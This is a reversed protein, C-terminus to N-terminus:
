ELAKRAKDFVPTSGAPMEGDVEYTMYWNLTGELAARLRANEELLILAKHGEKAYMERFPESEKLAALMDPFLNWMEDEDVKRAEYADEVLKNYRREFDEIDIM